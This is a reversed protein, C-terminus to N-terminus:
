CRAAVRRHPRAGPLAKRAPAAPTPAPPATPPTPPSLPGRRAISEAPRPAPRAPPRASRPLYPGARPRATAIPAPRASGRDSTDWGTRGAYRGPAPALPAALLTRATPRPAAGAFVYQ